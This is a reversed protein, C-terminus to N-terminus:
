TIFNRHAELLADIESDRLALADPNDVDVECFRVGRGACDRLYRRADARDVAQLVNCSGEVTKYPYVITM